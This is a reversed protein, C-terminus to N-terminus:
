RSKYLYICRGLAYGPYVLGLIVKEGATTCGETEVIENLSPVRRGYIRDDNRSLMDDKSSAYAFVANLLGLTGGVTILGAKAITSKRM